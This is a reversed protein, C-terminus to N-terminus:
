RAFGDVWSSRRLLPSLMYVFDATFAPKSARFLGLALDAESSQLAQAMVEDIRAAELTV